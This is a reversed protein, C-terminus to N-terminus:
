GYGVSTLLRDIEQPSLENVKGLAHTALNVRAVHEIIEMRYYAEMVDRGIALAGHNALLFTNYQHVFPMISDPLEESGPLAYPATPIGRLAAVVENLIPRDLAIGAVSFATAIAPHAHVVGRVDSRERYVRLHLPSETSPVRDPHGALTNGDLDVRIVDDASMFGKSVGSATILLETESVRCSINGDNSAVMQRVWLRRGVEIIDAIVHEETTRKGVTDQGSSM